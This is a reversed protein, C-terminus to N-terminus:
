PATRHVLHKPGTRATTSKTMDARGRGAGYLGHEVIYRAVRTPVDRWRTAEPKRAVVDRVSTSASPVPRNPLLRRGWAKRESVSWFSRDMAGVLATRTVLPRRAMVAPEALKIVVRAQRWRHFDAAQDSGILLRMTVARPLVSRLRRLTDVTYSANERGRKRLWRARDCEDTWVHGRGVALRLMAVRRSDSVVPGRPKLPSKAAPIYLLWADPGFHEHVLEPAQEVHFRHPPDFMGGYVVLTKVSTPIRLATVPPKSDRRASRRAM